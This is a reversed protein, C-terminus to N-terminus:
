LTVSALVGAIAEDLQEQIEAWTQDSINTDLIAELEDRSVVNEWLQSM